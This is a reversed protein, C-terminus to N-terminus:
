GDSKCPGGLTVPSVLRAECCTFAAKHCDCSRSIESVPEVCQVQVLPVVEDSMVGVQYLVRRLHFGLILGVRRDHCSDACPSEKLLDVRDDGMLCGESAVVM